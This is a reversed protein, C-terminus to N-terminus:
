EGKLKFVGKEYKGIDYNKITVVHSGENWKPLKYIENDLDYRSGIEGLIDLIMAKLERDTATFKGQGVYGSKGSPQTILDVTSSLFGKADPKDTLPPVANLTIKEVVFDDTVAGGEVRHQLKNIYNSTELLNLKFSLSDYEKSKTKLFENDVKLNGIEGNLSNVKKAAEDLINVNKAVEDTLLSVKKASQFVLFFLASILLIVITASVFIYTKLSQSVQLNNSLNLHEDQKNLVLDEEV